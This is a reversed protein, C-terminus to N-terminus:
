CSGIPRYNSSIFKGTEADFKDTIPIEKEVLWAGKSVAVLYRNDHCELSEENKLRYQTVCTGKQEGQLLNCHVRTARVKPMLNQQNLNTELHRAIMLTAANKKVDRESREVEVPVPHAQPLQGESLRNSVKWGAEDKALQIRVTSVGDVNNHIEFGVHGSKPYSGGFHYISSGFTKGLKLDPSEQLLYDRALHELTDMTDAQPDVKKNRVQIDDFTAFGHGEIDTEHESSILKIKFPIGLEEQKGFSLALDYGTMVPVKNPLQDDNQKAALWVHPRGLLDMTATEFNKEAVSGEEFLYLTVEVDPFFDEGQKIVLVDDNLVAQDVSFPTNLITGSVKQNKISAIQLNSKDLSPEKNSYQETGENNCASLLMSACLSGMWITNKFRM